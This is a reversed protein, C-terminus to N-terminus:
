QWIKLALVVLALFTHLSCFRLFVKELFGPVYAKGAFDFGVCLASPMSFKVTPKLLGFSNTCTRCVYTINYSPHRHYM